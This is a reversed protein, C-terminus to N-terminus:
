FLFILPRSGCFYPKITITESTMFSNKKVIKQSYYRTIGFIELWRSFNRYFTDSSWGGIYGVEEATISLIRWFMDNLGDDVALLLCVCVYNHSFHVKNLWSYHYHVKPKPIYTYYLRLILVNVNKMVIFEIITIKLNKLAVM